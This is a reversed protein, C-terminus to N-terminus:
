SGGLPKVLTPAANPPGSSAAGLSASADGGLGAAAAAFRQPAALDVIKTGGHGDSSAVFSSGLYDGRNNVLIVSANVGGGTGISATFVTTRGPPGCVDM